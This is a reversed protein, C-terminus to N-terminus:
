FSNLLTMLEDRKRYSVPVSTNDTLLCILEDRQFKRVFNLNIIHSNHVRFFSNEELLEHYEKMSRSVLIKEGGTLHFVTYNRDSECRIIRGVEIVHITNLTRLVIKKHQNSSNVKNISELLLRVTDTISSEPKSLSAREVAQKLENPDIPKTVYDIANFKFAKIAYEEYATVFIIKFNIEPFKNLLDFGTGDPMKIDLFVLDPENKIISSYGSEVGDGEGVIEITPCSVHLMRKISDRSNAEDDVIIARM